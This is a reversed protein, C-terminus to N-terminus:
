YNLWPTQNDEVPYGWIEMAERMESVPNKQDIDFVNEMVFKGTVDLKNFRHVRITEYLGALACPDEEAFMIADSRNKANMVVISGVAVSREDNKDETCVHLPGAMVVRESRILYEVHSANTQARVSAAEDGERDLNIILTPMGFRGDDHRLTHDKMHRWRYMPISSIDGGTLSKIIPENALFSQADPLSSADLCLAHGVIRRLDSSLLPYSWVVDVMSNYNFTENRLNAKRCYLVHDANLDVRNDHLDAWDRGEKDIKNDWVFAVFRNAGNNSVPPPKEIVTPADVALPRYGPGSDSSLPGDDSDEYDSDSSTYDSGDAVFSHHITLFPAAPPAKSPIFLPPARRSIIHPALFATNTVQFLLSLTLVTLCSNNNTTM